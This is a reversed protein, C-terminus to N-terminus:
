EELRIIYHVGSITQTVMMGNRVCWDAAAKVFTQARGHAFVDQLVVHLSQYDSLSLSHSELGDGEISMFRAYIEQKTM